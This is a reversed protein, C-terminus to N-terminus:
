ECTAQSGDPACATPVPVAGGYFDQCLCVKMCCIKGKVFAIGCTYGTACSRDSPNSTDRMPGVCDSDQACPASCFPRTDVGGVHDVPKLCIRSTCELAESNFVGYNPGADTLIDCSAGVNDADPASADKRDTGGDIDTLPITECSACVALVVWLQAYRRRAKTKEVSIM